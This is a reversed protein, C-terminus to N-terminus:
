NPTACRIQWDLQKRLTDLAARYKANGTADYMSFLVRGPNIRDVNLDTISYLPISGDDGIVRDIALLLLGNTYEWRPATSDVMAPDPARLMASLAM